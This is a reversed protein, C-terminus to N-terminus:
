RKESSGNQNRSLKKFQENLERITRIKNNCEGISRLLEITYETLMNEKNVDTSNIYKTKDPPTPINCDEVLIDPLEIYLTELKYVMREKPTTSCGTIPITLLLLVVYTFFSGISKYM